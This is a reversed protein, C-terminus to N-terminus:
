LDLLASLEDATPNRVGSASGYAITHVHKRLPGFRVATGTTIRSNALKSQTKSVIRISRASSGTSVSIRQRSVPSYRVPSCIVVISVRKRKEARESKWWDALGQYFQNAGTAAPAATAPAGQGFYPQGFYFAGFM